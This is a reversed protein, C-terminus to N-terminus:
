ETDKGIYRFCRGFKRVLRKREELDSVKRCEEHPNNGRRFACEFNNKKTFLASATTMEPKRKVEPTPRTSRSHVERLEVERLLAELFQEVKWHQSEENGRTIVLKINEPLKKMLVPVVISSYVM